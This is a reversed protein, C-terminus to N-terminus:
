SLSNYSDNLINKNARENLRIVKNLIEKKKNKVSENMDDDQEKNAEKFKEIEDWEDQNLSLYKRVAWEVPIITDGNADSINSLTDIFNIQAELVEFRKLMEFYSNKTYEFSLNSLFETNKAIEPFQKTLLYELPKRFMDERSSRIQNLFNNFNIEEINNAEVMNIGFSVSSERDWRNKPIQSDLILQNQFYELIDTDLLDPTDFSVSDIQPTNGQRSVGIAYNKFYGINKRSNVSIEGTKDDINIDEQMEALTEAVVEQAKAKPLDGVDIETKIRLQSNMVYWLVLSNELRRKINFNRVLGEIYSINGSPDNTKNYSMYVIKEDPITVSELSPDDIFQKWVKYDNGNVDTHTMPTLTFPDVERFALIYNVGEQWEKNKLAEESYIIEYSDFGTILYNRLLQTAINHNKKFGWARYIQKFNSWLAKQIKEEVEESLNLHTLNLKPYLYYNDTDYAIVSNVVTDLVWKIESNTSFEILFDRRAPYALNFVNYQPSSTLDSQAISRRIDEPLGQWAFMAETKGKTYSNEIVDKNINPLVNMLSTLNNYIKSKGIFGAM